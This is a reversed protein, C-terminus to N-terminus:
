KSSLIWNWTKFMHPHVSFGLQAEEGLKKLIYRINRTTMKDDREGCFVYVSKKNKKLEKLNNIIDPQIPHASNIGNKSRNVHLVNHTFDIQSWKLESVEGVRLAHRFMLMIMTKNRLRYRGNNDSANCLSEVEDVTLYKRRGEKMKPKAIKQM